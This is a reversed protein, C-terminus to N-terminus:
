FFASQNRAQIRFEHFLVVADRFRLLFWWPVSLFDLNAM